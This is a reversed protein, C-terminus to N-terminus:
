QFKEFLQCFHESLNFNFWNVDAAAINYQTCIMCFRSNNYFNRVCINLTNNNLNILKKIFRLFRQHVIHIFDMRGCLFQLLKVSEWQRM